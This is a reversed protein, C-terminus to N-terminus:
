VKAWRFTDFSVADCGAIISCLSDPELESLLTHFTCSRHSEEREIGCHHRYKDHDM